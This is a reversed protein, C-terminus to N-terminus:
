KDPSDESTRKIEKVTEKLVKFEDHIILPPRIPVLYTRSYEDYREILQNLLKSLKEYKSKCDKLASSVGCCVSFFSLIEQETLKEGNMEGSYWDFERIIKDICREEKEFVEYFHILRLKIDNFKGRIREARVKQEEDFHYIEM